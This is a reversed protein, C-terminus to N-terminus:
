NGKIAKIIIVYNLFIKESPFIKDLLLSFYSFLLFPPYILCILFYNIKNKNAINALYDNLLYSITSFLSGQKKIELIKHKHKKLLQSLGFETFRFYDNPVEHLGVLLTFSLLMLGDNKIIRFMEDIMKQPDKHHEIVQFSVINNFSNNPFPLIFNKVYNENFFLDPKKDNYWPNKSYNKFDIGRYSSIQTFFDKYPKDGCGIDLLSGKFNYKKVIHKIDQRLYYNNAFYPALFFRFKIM